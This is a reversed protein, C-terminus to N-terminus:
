EIEREGKRMGVESNARGGEANLMRCEANRM